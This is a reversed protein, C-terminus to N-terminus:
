QQAPDAGVAEEEAEDDNSSTPPPGVGVWDASGQILNLAPRYLFPVRWVRQNVPGIREFFGLEVLAEATKVAEQQSLQWIIALSSSNQTAKQDRLSEIKDRLVPFEAYITQELRVKSIAPLAEKFAAQDFLARDAPASVGRELRGIQIDRLENMFHILERPAASQTADRTRGTVWNFSRPKNPGSEVQKPFMRYLFQEQDEFRALVDERNVAYYAAIKENSLARRVVLNILDDNTWSITLAREIHSAERFGEATIKDWIDTRLFLKLRIHSFGKIDLYTKFLAKLADIELEPKEVFAVDLRDLMIWFTNGSSQLASDAYRILDDVSVVGFSSQNATPERLSIKGTLGTPLGTNHDLSVGGEIGSIRALGKVYDFAYRLAKALTFERPILRADELLSVLKIADPSGVGYEKFNQACLCAFYLKWLSVFEFQNHPADKSLVQFAPTGQPNEAAVAIISRDFLQNESDIVLSYIASKGSGKPGYIVDVEGSFVQRWQETEVFYARLQEREEEATRRGFSSSRLVELIPPITPAM